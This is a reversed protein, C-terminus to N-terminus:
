EGLAIFDQYIFRINDITKNGHYHGCYWKRYIIMEEITDLFEEMSKDVKTNDIFSLFWEIPEYKLPCTHTLIFDVVPNSAALNTTITEKENQTLQEDKFWAWNRMLRYEKDVSYAGGITLVSGEPFNYVEGDIAYLINPFDNEVLVPGNLYTKVTMNPLREPREEHNGRICFFTHPFLDRLVKKAKEDRYNLYYNLGADGLIVITVPESPKLADIFEKILYVDGHPDATLYTM